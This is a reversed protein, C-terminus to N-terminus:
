KDNDKILLNFQKKKNIGFIDEVEEFNFSGFTRM